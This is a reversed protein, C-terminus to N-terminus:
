DKLEGPILSEAEQDLKVRVRMSKLGEVGQLKEVPLEEIEDYLMGSQNLYRIYEKYEHKDNEQAFIIVIHGAKRLRENSNEIRAKDVRKKIIEYDLNHAGDVDFRKEDTRFRISIQHPYVMILQATDMPCPLKAKLREVRRTIECLATLQWLRLNKLHIESFTDDQLISQGVYIDFDLGDTKHKEFYHPIMAQARNDEVELIRSILDNIMVISEEYARRENYIIGLVPDLAAFYSEIMELLTPHKDRIEGFIPHVEQHFFQYIKMEDGSTIFRRLKKIHNELEFLFHNILPFDILQEAQEFIDQVMKLNELYDHRIANNRYSSSSVVDAQGYLAYVNKFIIPKVLPKQGEELKELYEYSTRIFKWEVSPHIHTYNERILAQIKNKIEERSRKLAIEFLPIVEAIKILTLANLQNPEKAGLELFGIINGTDDNLPAAVISRFGLNLLEVEISTPDPYKVLDEVVVITNEICLRQYISNSFEPDLPDHESDLLFHHDIRYSINHERRLPFDFAKVGLRLDPIDFYNRAIIQLEDVDQVLADDDLLKHKLRSLSEEETVNILNAFVLGEFAFNEPPILELWTKTDYINNLLRNIQDQSIEKLPKLQKIDVFEANLQAIYYQEINEHKSNMVFTFPPDIVIKQDYFKNLIMACARSISVAKTLVPNAGFGFRIERSKLLEFLKPTFYFAKMFFPPIAFALQRDRMVSPFMGALLIEVLDDNEDLVNFDNIPQFFERSQELRKMIEVALVDEGRDVSGVKGEWFRILPAFSLATEFPFSYPGFKEENIFEAHKSSYNVSSEQTSSNTINSM